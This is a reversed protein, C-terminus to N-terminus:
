AALNRREHLRREHTRDKPKKPKRRRRRTTWSTSDDDDFEFANPDDEADVVDYALHGYDGADLEQEEWEDEDDSRHLLEDPVGLDDTRVGRRDARELEERTTSARM